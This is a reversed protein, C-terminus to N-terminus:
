KWGGEASPDGAVGRWLDWAWGGPENGPAPPAPLNRDPDAAPPQSWTGMGDPDSFALPDGIWGNQSGMAAAYPTVQGFDGYVAPDKQQTLDPM